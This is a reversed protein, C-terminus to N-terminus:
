AYEKGFAKQMVEAPLSGVLYPKTWFRKYDIIRGNKKIFYQPDILAQHANICSRWPDMYEKSHANAWFWKFSEYLDHTDEPKIVQFNNIPYDPYVIMKRLNRFGESSEKRHTLGFIRTKNNLTLRDLTMRIADPHTKYHDLMMHAQERILEPLDPTWYFYEINRKFGSLTYDSKPGTTTLFDAFRVGLWDDYLCLEVPSIGMIYGVNQYTETRQKILDDTIRYRQVSAYNHKELILVTDDLDENRNPDKLHDLITIKLNPYKRKLEEIQPRISFDWESIMNTSSTDMSPRYKGNMQSIPWTIVVEDLRINNHLFSYLITTSDGGGSWGVMLYEYKDRLQQARMRYLVRIDVGLRQKWDLQGYEKSNFEWEIPSRTSSAYQLALIKHNFIKGGVLYYGNKQFLDVPALTDEAKIPLTTPLTM